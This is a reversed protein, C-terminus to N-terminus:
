KRADPPCAYGITTDGLDLYRKEYTAVGGFHDTLMKEVDNDSGERRYKVLCSMEYKSRHTQILKDFTSIAPMARKIDPGAWEWDEDDVSSVMIHRGNESFNRAKSAEVMM